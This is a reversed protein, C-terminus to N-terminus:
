WREAIVFCGNVNQVIFVTGDFTNLQFNKFEQRFAAASLSFPGTSYKAGIEYADVTEPDFQLNGVLNQAGTQANGGGFSAFSATPAKLASRDLNFGGAKYGRSFSAYPLLDDTPKWSLIATGTFKHEKRSDAISVGNLEATSNGQCALGILGVATAGLTPIFPTLANQQAM